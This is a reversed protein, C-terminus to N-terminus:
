LIELCVPLRANPFAFFNISLAGITLLRANDDNDAPVPMVRPTLAPLTGRGGQEAHLPRGNLMPEAAFTSSANLRWEQTQLAHRPPAARVFCDAAADASTPPPPPPPPSTSSPPPPLPAGGGHLSCRSQAAPHRSLRTRVSPQPRPQASPAFRFSACRPELSCRLACEAWDTTNDAASHAHSGPRAKQGKGVSLPSGHCSAAGEGEPRPASSSASRYTALLDSLHFALPESRLNLAVLTLAGAPLGAATASCSAYLRLVNVARAAAAREEAKDKRGDKKEARETGGGVSANRADGDANGDADGGGEGDSDGDGDGDSDSDGDHNYDHDGDDAAASHVALVRPGMLRRWLAAAYMDSNVRRPAAPPVWGDATTSTNDATATDFAAGLSLLSYSGGILTQRCVVQTGALALSGLADIYWFGSVFADTVRPRGSNYAGGLEPVWVQVGKGDGGGTDDKGRTSATAAATARVSAALPRVHKDLFDARLVKSILERASVNGAGLPYLHHSLVPLWPAAKLLEAFWIPDWMANPGLLLPTHPAPWLQQILARLQALGPTYQQVDLHAEIAHEGGLENGFGVGGIPQRLRAARRLLSAANSMEWAGEYRTCCAPVPKRLRCATDPPCAARTRGHLANVTFIIQCGVAKCFDSLEDWRQRSLCGSRFGTRIADDKVFTDRVSSNGHLPAPCSGDDEEYVIQDSLSGGLRLYFPSLLRAAGHLLPDNLDAELMSAGRWPCRGYDCKTSPWWDLTACMFRPSVVNAVKPKLAVRVLRRQWDWGGRHVKPVFNKAHQPHPKAHQHHKTASPTVAAMAGPSPSLPPLPPPPPAPSLPPPLAPSPPAPSPPWTPSSPQSLRRRSGLSSRLSSREIPWSAKADAGLSLTATILLVYFALAVVLLAFSLKGAITARRM